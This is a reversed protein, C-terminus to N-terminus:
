AEAIDWGVEMLLYLAREKMDGNIKRYVMADSLLKYFQLSTPLLVSCCHRRPNGSKEPIEFERSIDLLMTVSVMAYVSLPTEAELVLGNISQRHRTASLGGVLNPFWM